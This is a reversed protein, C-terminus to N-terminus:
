VRVDKQVAELRISIGANTDEWLYWSHDPEADYVDFTCDYEITLKTAHVLADDLDTFVEINMSMYQNWRETVVYLTEYEKVPKNPILDKLRIVDEVPIDIEKTWDDRNDLFLVLGDWHDANRNYHLCIRKTESDKDYFEFDDWEEYSQVKCEFKVTDWDILQPDYGDVETVNVRKSRQVGDSDTYTIDVTWDGWERTISVTQGNYTAFM